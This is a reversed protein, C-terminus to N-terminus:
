VIAGCGSMWTAGAATLDHLAGNCNSRESIYTGVGCRGCGDCSFWFALRTLRHCRVDAAGRRAHVSTVFDCARRFIGALEIRWIEDMGADNSRRDCLPANCADIDAVTVALSKPGTGLGITAGLFAYALFHETWGPAGTRVLEEKPLLSLVVIALTALLSMTNAIVPVKTLRM